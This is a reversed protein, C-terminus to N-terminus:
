LQIKEMVLQITIIAIENNVESNSTKYKIRLPIIIVKKLNTGARHGVAVNSNGETKSLADAGIAVNNSGAINSHLTHNGVTVNKIGSRNATQSHVGVAVNLKGSEM